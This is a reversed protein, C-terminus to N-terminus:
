CADAGLRGEKDKGGKSSTRMNFVLDGDDLLRCAYAINVATEAKDGTLVWVQIGAERLAAITDPSSEQLRDEM